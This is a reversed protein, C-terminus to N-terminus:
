PCPATNQPGPWSGSPRGVKPPPSHHYHHSSVLEAATTYRKVGRGEAGTRCSQCPTSMICYCPSLSFSILCAARGWLADRGVKDGPGVEYIQAGDEYVAGCGAPQTPGRMDTARNQQVGIAISFHGPALQDATGSLPFKIDVHM